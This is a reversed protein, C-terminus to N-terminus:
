VHKWTQGYIAKEATQQCVGFESALSRITEKNVYHRKRMEAVILDTLKSNPRHEGKSQRNKTVCDAHNDDNTGLFLHDPNVCLPVDCKHLVHMGDPIPGFKLEYAVRHAYLM